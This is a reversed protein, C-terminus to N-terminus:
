TNLSEPCSFTRNEGKGYNNWHQLLKYNTSSGGTAVYDTGFAGQLDPYKEGYCKMSPM